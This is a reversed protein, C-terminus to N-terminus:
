PCLGLFKLEVLASPGSSSTGAVHQGVTGDVKFTGGMSDQGGGNAIVSQTITFTGGSQALAALQLTLLLFYFTFVGRAKQWKDKTNM